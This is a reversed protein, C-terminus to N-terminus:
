DRPTPTTPPRPQQAAQREREADAILERVLKQVDVKAPKKPEM